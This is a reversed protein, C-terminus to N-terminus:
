EVGMLTVLENYFKITTTKWASMETGASLPNYITASSFLYYPYEANPVPDHKQIIDIDMSQMTTGAAPYQSQRIIVIYDDSEARHLTDDNQHLEYNNIFKSRTYIWDLGDKEFNG